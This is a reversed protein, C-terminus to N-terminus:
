FSGLLGARLTGRTFRQDDGDSNKFLGSDLEYAAFPTVYKSVASSRAGVAITRGNDNFQGAANTTAPDVGDPTYEKLEYQSFHVFGTTAGFKVDASAVFNTRLNKGNKAKDDEIVRAGFTDRVYDISIRASPSDYEIGASLINSHGLDYTAIQVLPMIHGDGAGIKPTTYEFTMAADRTKNSQANWGNAPVVDQLIQVSFTGASETLFSTMLSPTYEFPHSGLGISEFMSTPTLRKQEFGYTNIQQHGARILIMKSPTLWDVFAENFRAAQAGLVNWRARYTINTDAQGNIGIHFGNLQHKLEPTRNKEKEVLGDDDRRIEFNYDFSFNPQHAAESALAAFSQGAVMAAIILNRKM